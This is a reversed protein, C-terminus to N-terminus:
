FAARLEVGITRPDSYGGYDGFPSSVVGTITKESTMDFVAFSHHASLSTALGVVLASIFGLSKM